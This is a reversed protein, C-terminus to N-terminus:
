QGNGAPVGVQLFARRMRLMLKLSLGGVICAERSDALSGTRLRSSDATWGRNKRLSLGWKFVDDPQSADLLCLRVRNSVESPRVPQEEGVALGAIPEFTRGAQAPQAARKRDRNFLQFGHQKELETIQGSLASQTIRLRAAQPCFLM